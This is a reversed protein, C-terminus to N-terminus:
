GPMRGSFSLFVVFVDSYEPRSELRTSADNLYLDCHTIVSGSQKTCNLAQFMFPFMRVRLFSLMREEGGCDNQPNPLLPM